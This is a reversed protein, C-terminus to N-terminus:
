KEEGDRGKIAGGFNHALGLAKTLGDIDGPNILYGNDKNIIVEPIGGCINFYNTAGYNMSELIAMPLGEKYSPLVLFDVQKLLDNIQETNVWGLVNVVDELGYESIRQKVKILKGGRCIFNELLEM